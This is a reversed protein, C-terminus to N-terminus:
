KMGAVINHWYDAAPIMNKQKWKSASTNEAQIILNNSIFGKERRVVMDDLCLHLKEARELFLLMTQGQFCM